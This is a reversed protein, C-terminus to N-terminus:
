IFSDCLAAVNICLRLFYILVLTAAAAAMGAVSVAIVLWRGARVYLSSAM